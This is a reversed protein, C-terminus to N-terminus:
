LETTMDGRMSMVLGWNHCIEKAGLGIAALIEVMSWLHHHHCCQREPFWRSNCATDDRVRCPRVCSLVPHVVFRILYPSYSKTFELGVLMPFCVQLSKFNKFSRSLKLLMLTRSKLSGWTKQMTQASKPLVVFVNFFLDCGGYLNTHCCSCFVKTWFYRRSEKFVGPCDSQEVYPARRGPSPSWTPIQMTQWKRSWSSLDFSNSNRSERQWYLFIM